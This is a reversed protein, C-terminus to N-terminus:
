LAYETITHVKITSGYAEKTTSNSTLIAISLAGDPIHASYWSYAKAAISFLRKDTYENILSDLPV